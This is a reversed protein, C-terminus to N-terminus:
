YPRYRRRMPLCRGTRKYYVTNAILLGIQLLAMVATIVVGVSDNGDHATLYDEYSLIVTDGHSLAYLNLSRKGEYHSVVITDGANMWRLADRDIERMVITGIELPKEYEEVYIYYWSARGTSVLEYDVVTCNEYVLSDASPYKETFMLSFFGWIFLGALLLFLLSVFVFQIPQEGKRM